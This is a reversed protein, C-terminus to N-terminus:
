RKSYRVAKQSRAWAQPARIKAAPSIVAGALNGAITAKPNTAMDLKQDNRLADRNDRYAKVIEEASLPEDTTELHSNPDFPKWSGLNKVGALRGAGGIVGGIEDDFGATFGSAVGRLGSETPSPGGSKEALYQDPNFGQAGASKEKLYQDPNFPM